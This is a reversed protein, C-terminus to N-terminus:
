YVEHLPYKKLCINLITPRPYTKKYIYGQHTQVRLRGSQNVRLNSEIFTLKQRTTVLMSETKTINLTLKNALLWEKSCKMLEQNIQTELNTTESASLTLSADGSYTCPISSNLCNPLVTILILFLLPGLISGQPAGCKIPKAQSLASKDEIKM